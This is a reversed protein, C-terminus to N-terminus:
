FNHGPWTGRGHGGGRSPGGRRSDSYPKRLSKGMLRAHKYTAAYQRTRPTGVPSMFGRWFYSSRTAPNGSVPSVSVAATISKKLTDALLSYGTHTLHVGDSSSVKKLSDVMKETDTGFTESLINPVVFDKIGSSILSSIIPKRLAVTDEILTHVQDTTGTGDCHGERGCCGTFLYRPLPPVFIKKGPIKTLLEKAKNTIGAITEKSCVRVKGGMHYIGDIKM